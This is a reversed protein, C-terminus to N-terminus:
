FEGLLLNDKVLPREGEYIEIGVISQYDFSTTYEKSITYPISTNRHILESMINDHTISIGLSLPTVDVIQLGRFDPNTKDSLIAAQIAAGYAVAEDPNINQFPKKGNFFEKNLNQIKPIRISGGILIIDDIQNKQLKSEELTTKLVEITKNFLDDNLREFL